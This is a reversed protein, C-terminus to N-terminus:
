YLSYYNNINTEIGTRNSSQDTNFFILESINGDYNTITTATRFLSMGFGANISIPKRTQTNTTGIVNNIYIKMKESTTANNEDLIVSVLNSVDNNFTKTVSAIIVGASTDSRSTMTQNQGSACYLAYGRSNGVRMNGFLAYNSAFGYKRFVCFVASKTGDHLFNYASLSANTMFSPKISDCFLTVKSGQYIVKGTAMVLPQNTATAQTFNLSGVQDYWTTVYGTDSSSTGVFTKLSATDLYNSVFGINSETNDSKRRVRICNGAYATRLKRFSFASYGTYTDLLLGASPMPIYYMNGRIIQGDAGFSILIFLIILRM